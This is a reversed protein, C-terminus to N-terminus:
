SVTLLQDVRQVLDILAQQQKNKFAEQAMPAIDCQKPLPAKKWIMQQFRPIMVFQLWQEFSLTDLCFPQQSMLDSPAPQANSWLGVNRMHAELESLYEALQEARSDM